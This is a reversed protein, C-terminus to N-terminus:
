FNEARITNQLFQWNLAQNLLVSLRIFIPQLLVHVNSNWKFRGMQCKTRTCICVFSIKFHYAVFTQVLALSTLSDGFINLM